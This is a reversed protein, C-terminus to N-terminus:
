HKELVEYGETAVILVMAGDVTYVPKHTSGGMACHYDGPGLVKDDAHFDGAIVYCQENGKHRHTPIRTGPEMKFLSTITHAQRDVFLHKVQIGRALEQWEGDDARLTLFQPPLSPMAHSVAPEADRAEFILSVLQERVDPSPTAEPAGFALAEVTQQFNRHAAECEECGEALHEEFAKAEHQGLAGLAYLAAREGGDEEAAGHYKM